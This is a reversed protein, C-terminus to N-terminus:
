FSFAVMMIERKIRYEAADYDYKIKGQAMLNACSFITLLLSIYFYRM